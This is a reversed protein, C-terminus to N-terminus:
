DAKKTESTTMDALRSQLRIVILDIIRKVIQKKNESFFAFEERSFLAVVMYVLSTKLVVDKLITEAILRVGGADNTLLKTMNHADIYHKFCDILLEEQFKVIPRLTDSQFQEVATVGAASIEPRIELIRECRTPM